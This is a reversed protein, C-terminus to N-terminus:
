KLVKEVKVEGDAYTTKKIVLGNVNETVKQGSITFYEVSKVEKAGLSNSLLVTINSTTFDLTYNHFPGLNQIHEVGALKYSYWFQVEYTTTEPEPSFHDFVNDIGSWAGEDETLLFTGAGVSSEYEGKIYVLYNFRIEVGGELFNPTVIGGLWLNDTASGIFTDFQSLDRAEVGETLGDISLLAEASDFWLLDGWNGILKGDDWNSGLGGNEIYYCRNGLEAPINGTQGWNGEWEDIPVEAAFRVFIVNEWTTEGADGPVTISYCDGSVHTMLEGAWGAGGTGGYFYATTQPADLVWAPWNKVNLFVKEGATFVDQSFVVSAFLVNAVMITLIKKM